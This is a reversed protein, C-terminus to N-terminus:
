QRSTRIRKCSLIQEVGARDQLPEEKRRRREHLSSTLVALRGTLPIADSIPWRANNFLASGLALAIPLETKTQLILVGSSHVACPLAEREQEVCYCTRM